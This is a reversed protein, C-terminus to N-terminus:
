RDLQLAREFQARAADVDGGDWLATALNRRAVASQPDADVAHRFTATAEDLKGVAVLAIGFNTWVDVDNSRFTLYERYQVTAEEFMQQHFLAEALLGHAEVNAPDMALALRDQEMADPWRQEKAFARGMFVRASVVDVRLPQQWHPHSLPPSQWIRIFAELEEVAQGLRGENFLEVGLDHRARPDGPIAARLHTVAEDHYGAAMLEDGLIHHAISSPWRDVVTRLLSLQSAYERNRVVTGAMLAASVVVLLFVRARAFKVRDAILVVGMVVLAVLALLPLYMRREAGVESAIPVISSTPALTMFFWAGLFGLKPQRVCLVVTLLLLIVILVAYPWVDGLTLPLPWGYNVVLSRPWVALYIYRTIMVTQNLLYTWPRVDTAFGASLGRPGSWILPGLALWTGALGGYFRWRARCSQKLSDFVFVRDYLVVMLPATVMSEKCAMGLACSMVAAAQWLVARESCMGRLSAYITLLYFLAMMSETRQTLYDVVESNLPHVTWVLAVAFAVTISRPGFRERLSPLELTRRVIAFALWACLVHIAVNVLHYGRVNLGGLAYNVAFSVNM